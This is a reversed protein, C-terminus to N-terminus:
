HYRMGWGIWWERKREGGASVATVKSLWLFPHFCLICKCIHSIKYKLFLTHILWFFSLESMFLQSYVTTWFSTSVSHSLASQIWRASSLTWHQTSTFVTIDRQNRYFTPLKKVLQTVSQSVSQSNRKSPVFEYCVIGKM